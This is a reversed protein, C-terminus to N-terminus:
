TAIVTSNPLVAAFAECWEVATAWTMSAGFSGINNKGVYFSVQWSSPNNGSFRRAPSIRIPFERDIAAKLNGPLENQLQALLDDVDKFKTVMTMEQVKTGDERV